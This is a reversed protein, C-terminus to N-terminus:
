KGRHLSLTIEEVLSMESKLTRNLMPLTGTSREGGTEGLPPRAAGSRGLM